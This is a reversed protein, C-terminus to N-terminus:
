CQKCSWFYMFLAVFVKAFVEAVESKEKCHFVLGAKSKPHGERRLWVVRNNEFFVDVSQAIPKYFKADDFASTARVEVPFVVWLSRTLLTHNLTWIFLAVMIFSAIM